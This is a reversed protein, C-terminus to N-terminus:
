GQAAFESCTTATHIGERLKAMLGAVLSADDSDTTVNYNEYYAKASASAFKVGYAYVYGDSGTVNVSAVFLGDVGPEAAKIDTIVLKDNDDVKVAVYVVRDCQASADSELQVSLATESSRTVEVLPFGASGDTLQLNILNCTAKDNEYSCLGINKSVFQNRASVLGQKKFALGMSLAAALQSMLKLKARQAVQGETNPNSVQPNYQRVIQEGGSIAFVSAGLKGSGKGVFGNLKM